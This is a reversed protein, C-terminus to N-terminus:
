NISNGLRCDTFLLNVLMVKVTENKVKVENDREVDREVAREWICSTKTMNLNPFSEDTLSTPIITKLWLHLILIHTETEALPWNQADERNKINAM